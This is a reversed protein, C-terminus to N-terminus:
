RRDERVLIYKGDVKAPRDYCRECNKRDAQTACNKNEFGDSFDYDHPCDRVGGWVDSDIKDPWKKAVWERRTMWHTKIIKM